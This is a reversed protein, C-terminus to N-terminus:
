WNSDRYQIRNESQRPEQWGQSNNFPCSQSPQGSKLNQAQTCSLLDPVEALESLGLFFRLVPFWLESNGM